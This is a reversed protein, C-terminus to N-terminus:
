VVDVTRMVIRLVDDYTAADFAARHFTREADMGVQVRLARSVAGIIGFVNGDQGVLRVRVGPYLPVPEVCPSANDRAHVLFCDDSVRDHQYDEITEDYHTPVGCHNCLMPIPPTDFGDRTVTTTHDHRPNTCLISMTVEQHAPGACIPMPCEPPCTIGDDVNNAHISVWAGFRDVLAAYAHDRM